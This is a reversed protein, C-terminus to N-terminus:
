QKPKPKGFAMALGAIALVGFIMGANSTGAAGGGGGGGGDGGDGGGGGRRAMAKRVTASPDYAVASPDANTAAAVAYANYAADYGRIANGLAVNITNIAQLTSYPPEGADNSFASVAAQFAQAARNVAAPGPNSLFDMAAQRFEATKQAIYGPNAAGVNGQATAAQQAQGSTVASVTPAALAKLQAALAAAEQAIEISTKAVAVGTTVGAKVTDLTSGSDDSSGAKGYANYNVRRRLAGFDIIGRFSRGRAAGYAGLNDAQDDSSLQENDYQLPLPFM